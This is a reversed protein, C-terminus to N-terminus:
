LDGEGMSASSLLGCQGLWESFCVSGEVVGFLGWDSGICGVLISVIM